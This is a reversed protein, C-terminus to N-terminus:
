SIVIFIDNLIFTDHLLRYCVTTMSRCWYDRADSDKPHSEFGLDRRRIIMATPLVDLNENVGGDCSVDRLIECCTREQFIFCIKLTRRNLFNKSTYM